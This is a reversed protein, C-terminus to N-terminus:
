FRFDGLLDAGTARDVTDFEYNLEVEYVLRIHFDTSCKLIDFDEQDTLLYGM